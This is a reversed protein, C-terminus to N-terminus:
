SSIESLLTQVEKTLPHNPEANSWIKEAALLAQQAQQMKNEAIFIKAQEMLGEPEQNFILFLDELKKQADKYRNLLRYCRILKIDYDYNHWSITELYKEYAEAAKKLDGQAFYLDGNLASISQTNAGFKTSFETFRDLAGKAATLDNKYLHYKIYGLEVGGAFDGTFNKKINALINLIEAERESELYWEVQSMQTFSVNMPRDIQLLLQVRENFLEVAKGTQGLRHYLTSLYRLISEQDQLTKGRPLQQHYKELAAQYNGQRAIISILVNQTVFNEELLLAEEFKEIAQDYKGQDRYLRGLLLPANVDEPYKQAYQNFYYEASDYEKKGLKINGLTTLFIGRNDDITLAERYVNEAKEIKGAWWYAGALQEYAELDEPYVEKWMNLVKYRKEANEEMLYYLSKAVFQLKEPLVYLNDMIKVLFEKGAEISNGNILHGAGHLMALAFHEDHELSQVVMEGGKIYENESYVLTQGDIFLQYAKLSETLINSVALDESNSIHSESQGLDKRLAISLQDLLSWFEPGSVNREAILKGTKTEYLEMKIDYGESSVEYTGQVFHDYHYDQTIKRRLTFPVEQFDSIGAEKMEKFLGFPDPVELYVDQSLDYQIAFSIGAGLWHHESNEVSQKFPFLAVQKRFNSNPVLFELANGNEDEVIVKSATKGMSKGQLFFFTLVIMLVVNIPIFIKEAKTWRDPGPRGHFYAILCVGPLGCIVLLLVLDVWYPSWLFRQCLWEIFQVLGWSAVLYSGIIQPFRRDLLDKWVSSRVSTEVSTGSM